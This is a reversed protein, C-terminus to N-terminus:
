KLNSVAPEYYFLLWSRLLKDSSCVSSCPVRAQAAGARCWWIPRRSPTERLWPAPSQRHVGCRAGSGPVWVQEQEQTQLRAPELARILPWYRALGLGRITGAHLFGKGTGALSSLSFFDLGAM